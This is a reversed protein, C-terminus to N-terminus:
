EFRVALALENRVSVVYGCKTWVSIHVPLGTDSSSSSPDRRHDAPDRRRMTRPIYIGEPPTRMYERSDARTFGYTYTLMYLWDYERIRVYIRTYAPMRAYAHM